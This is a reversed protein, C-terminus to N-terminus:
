GRYNVKWFGVFTCGHPTARDSTMHIRLATNNTSVAASQYSVRRNIPIFMKIPIGSRVDDTTSRYFRDRYVKYCNNKRLKTLIDTLALNTTYSTICAYVVIRVDADEDDNHLIGNIQLSRVFIQRGERMSVVDDGQPIQDLVDINQSGAGACIDNFTTIMSGYHYKGENLARNVGRRVFRRRRVIKRRRPRRFTRRRGPM